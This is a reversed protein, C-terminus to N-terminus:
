VLCRLRSELPDCRVRIQDNDFREIVLTLSIIYIDHSCDIKYDVM